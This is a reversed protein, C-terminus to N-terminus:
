LPGFSTTLNRYAFWLNNSFRTSTLFLYILLWKFLLLIFMSPCLLLIYNFYTITTSSISMYCLNATIFHDFGIMLLLLFRLCAHLYYRWWEVIINWKITIIEWATIKAMPNNVAPCMSSIFIMDTSCILFNRLEKTVNSAKKTVINSVLGLISLKGHTIPSGIIPLLIHLSLWVLPILISLHINPSSFLLLSSGGFISVKKTKPSFITADHTVHINKLTYGYMSSKMFVFRCKSLHM